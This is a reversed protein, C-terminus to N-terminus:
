HGELLKADEDRDGLPLMDSLRRTGQVKCLGGHAVRDRSQLRTVVGLQEIPHPAPDLQGLSALGKQRLRPGHQRAGIHRLKREAFKAAQLPPRQGHLRALGDGSIPQRPVQGRESAGIRLDLDM